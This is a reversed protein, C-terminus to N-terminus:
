IAIRRARLLLAVGVAGLGVNPFWVALIVPLAGQIALYQFFMVTCYYILCLVGCVIVGGSSVGKLRRLSLPVAVLAFVIPAMPLAFRRQLQVEFERLGYRDLMSRRQGARGKAIISKLEAMTMDKPRVRGLGARMSADVEFAYDFTQFSIKRYGGDQGAGANAPALKKTRGENENVGNPAVDTARNEPEIHIAGNELRLQVQGLDPEYSFTGHEAFILLPRHKVSRDSIFVGELRDDRDRSEVYIMRDEIRMFRQPQIMRGSTTMSVLRDRLQRKTRHEVEIALYATVASVLVSLVLVPVLVTRIGIGNTRFAMIESDGAMRGVGALVGFLFGIPITYTMIVVVVARLVMLVDSFAVGIRLFDGLYRLLNQGVFILSVGVLGVAMYLVVERAVYLFLIRPVKM